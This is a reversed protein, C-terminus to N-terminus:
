NGSKYEQMAKMQSKTIFRALEAFNSGKPVKGMYCKYGCDKCKQGNCEIAGNEIAKRVDDETAYVTFTYDFYKALKCPKGILLSSQMYILNDPKGEADTARIVPATNKAFLTFRVGPHSKAIRIYNRAHTENEIDGSSNFRCVFEIRLTALEEVTFLVSSMIMLQLGHRNKVNAWRTEQAKDYCYNCICFPNDKMKERVQQCFSCNSCSSDCSYMTEIKGSDHYPVQYVKLLNMRDNHTLEPKALIGSVTMMDMEFKTM